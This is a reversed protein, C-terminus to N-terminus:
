HTQPTAGGGKDTNVKHTCHRQSGSLANSAKSSSNHAVKPSSSVLGLGKVLAVFARLRQAMERADREKSSHKTLNPELRLRM